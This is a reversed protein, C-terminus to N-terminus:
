LEESGEHNLNKGHNEYMEEEDDYEEEEESSYESNITNQIQVKLKEFSMAKMHQITNGDPNIIFFSTFDHSLGQEEHLNMSWKLYRLVPHTNPGNINVVEMIHIKRGTFTFRVHFSACDIDYDLDPHNYFFVVIELLYPWTHHLYEIGRYISDIKKWDKCTRAITIVLTVYGEFRRFDLLTGTSNKATLDFFSPKDESVYAIHIRKMDRQWQLCAEPCHQMM